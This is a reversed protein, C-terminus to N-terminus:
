SLHHVKFNFRGNDIIHLATATKKDASLNFDIDIVQTNMDFHVGREELYRKIPIIVSHYQNYKTRMIGGLRHLGDVLHIFRKMYRRMEALSSWKQFAFMTTWIYWFNTEFFDPSFWDEIHKNGLSSESVFTLKLLDAQDGLSLGFSSVDMKKGDKILRAQSNSVFRSNFEFSEDKVSVNPDEYSPINSLLDWYCVFHEEHMRGGRVVFGEESEGAGDCAGGLIDDQELIHINRGQVEADKVLYVAAAMSAIGGGILYVKSGIPNKNKERKM